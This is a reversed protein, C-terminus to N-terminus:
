SDRHPYGSTVDALLSCVHDQQVVVKRGYHGPNFFTCDNRCLKIKSFGAGGRGGGGGVGGSGGLYRILAQCM